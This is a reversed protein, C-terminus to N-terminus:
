HVNKGGGRERGGFSEKKWILKHGLLFVPYVLSSLSSLTDFRM